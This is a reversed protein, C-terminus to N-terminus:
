AIGKENLGLDELLSLRLDCDYAVDFADSAAKYTARAALYEADGIQGARYMEVAARYWQTAAAAAALASEYESSNAM